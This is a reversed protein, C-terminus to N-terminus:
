AACIASLVFVAALLTTLLTFLQFLVSVAGAITTVTDSLPVSSSILAISTTSAPSVSAATDFSCYDMHSFSRAGAKALDKEKIVGNQRFFMNSSIVVVLQSKPFADRCSLRAFGRREPSLRLYMKAGTNM